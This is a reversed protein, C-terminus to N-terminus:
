TDPDLGVKSRFWKRFGVGAKMPGGLERAVGRVGYLERRLRSSQAREDEISIRSPDMLRDKTADSLKRKVDLIGADKDMTKRIAELREGYRLRGGEPGRGSRYANITNVLDELRKYDAWDRRDKGSPYRAGILASAFEDIGYNALVRDLRDGTQTDSNREIIPRIDSYELDGTRTQPDYLKGYLEKFKENQHPFGFYRFITYALRVVGKDTGVAQQVALLYADIEQNTIGIDGEGRYNTGRGGLVDSFRHTTGELIYSSSHEAYIYNNNRGVRRLGPIITTPDEYEGEAGGERHVRYGQLQFLLSLCRRTESDARLWTGIGGPFPGQQEIHAAVDDIRSSDMTFNLLILRQMTDYSLRFLRDRSARLVLNLEAAIADTRGGDMVDSLVQFSRVDLPIGQYDNAGILDPLQHLRAWRRSFTSGNSPDPEDVRWEIRRVAYTRDIDPQAGGPNAPQPESRAARAAEAALRRQEEIFARQEEAAQRQAEAAALQAERVRAAEEDRVPPRAPEPETVRAAAAEPILKQWKWSEDTYRELEEEPITGPEARNYMEQMVRQLGHEYRWGALGEFLTRNAGNLTLSSARDIQASRDMKESIALAQSPLDPLTAIEAADADLQRDGIVFLRLSEARAALRSREDILQSRRERDAITPAASAEVADIEGQVVRFPRLEVRDVAAERPAGPIEPAM